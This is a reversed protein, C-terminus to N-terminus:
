VTKAELNRLAAKHHHEVHYITFYLMERLTLKGILPHPVIYNDLDEENFKGLKKTLSEILKLLNDRLTEKQKANITKPIFSSPAKGGNALIGQYKAVLKDYSISDRDTKGFIIGIVFKPLLFGQALPKVSRCIHNIQQGATWKGNNSFTFDEASLGAAYDAFAKHNGLLKNIIEQKNM